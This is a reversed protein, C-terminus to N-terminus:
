SELELAQRFAAIAETLDAESGDARCSAFLSIGLNSWYMPLDDPLVPDEPAIIRRWLSVVASIRAHDGSAMAERTLKEAPDVAMAALSRLLPGPLPEMDAVFCPALKWIADIQDVTGEDTGQRALARHWHLLGLAHRAELDAAGEATSAYADLRE